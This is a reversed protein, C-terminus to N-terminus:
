NTHTLRGQGPPHHGVWLRPASHCRHLPLHALAKLMRMGEGRRHCGSSGNRYSVSTRISPSSFRRGRRRRSQRACPPPPVPGPLPLRADQQIPPHLHLQPQQVLAEPGSPGRCLAWRRPASIPCGPQWPWPAEVHQALVDLHLWVSPVVVGVLDAHQDPLSMGLMHPICGLSGRHCSTCLLAPQVCRGTGLKARSCNQSRAAACSRPLVEAKGLMTIHTIKLSPQPWNSVCRTVVAAMFSSRLRM